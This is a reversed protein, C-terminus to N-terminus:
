SGYLVRGESLVKKIFPDRLYLRKKIEYPTYVLIDMAGNHPLLRSMQYYRETKRLNEIGKKIILFDLDSDAGYEGKAASGFLIVKEPKYKKVLQQTIDQIEKEIKKKNM